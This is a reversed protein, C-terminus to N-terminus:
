AAPRLAALPSTRARPRDTLWANIRIPNIAADTLQHQLSTKGLDRYRSRRLGHAQAGQSITREGGARIKYRDKWGDTAQRQRAQTVTVPPLPGHLAVEHDSRAAALASSNAYGAHGRHEDPLPGREALGTHVVAAM